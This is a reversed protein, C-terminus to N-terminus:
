SCFCFSILLACADESCLRACASPHLISSKNSHYKNTKPFDSLAERADILQEESVHGAEAKAIAIDIENDMNISEPLQKGKDM